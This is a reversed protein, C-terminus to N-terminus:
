RSRFKKLTLNIAAVLDFRRSIKYLFKKDSWSPYVLVRRIAYRETKWPNTHQYCAFAGFYGCAKAIEICEHDFDGFPYCLWDIPCNFQKELVSKSDKIERTKEARTMRNLHEHTLTHSGIAYGAALWDRIQQENMLPEYLAAPVGDWAYQGGMKEAAIFNIAPINYKKLLPVANTIHNAFGDDFTMLVSKKPVANLNQLWGEYQNISIFQYGHELLLKIHQELKEPSMETPFDSSVTHYCLVVVRNRYFLWAIVAAVLGTAAAVLTLGIDILKM